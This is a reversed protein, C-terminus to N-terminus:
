MEMAILMILNSMQLKNKFLTFTSQFRDLQHLIKQIIQGVLTVIGPIFYAVKVFLQTSSDMDKNFNEDSHMTTVGIQEWTNECESQLRVQLPGGGDGNSNFEVDQELELLCMDAGFKQGVYDPHALVKKVKKWLKPNKEEKDVSGLLVSGSPTANWSSNKKWGDYESISFVQSYFKSVFLGFKHIGQMRQLKTGFYRLLVSKNGRTKVNARWKVQLPGGSDGETTGWGSAIMSIGM